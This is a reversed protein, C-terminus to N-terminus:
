TWRAISVSSKCRANTNYDHVIQAILWQTDAVKPNGPTPSEIDYGTARLVVKRTLAFWFKGLRGNRLAVYPGMTATRLPWGQMRASQCLLPAEPGSSFDERWSLALHCRNQKVRRIAQQLAMAGKIPRGCDLVCLVEGSCRTAGFHFLLAIEQRGLKGADVWERPWERRTYVSYDTGGTATTGAGRRSVSESRLREVFEPACAEGCVCALEFSERSKYASDRFQLLSDITACVIDFPEDRVLLLFSCTPLEEDAGDYMDGFHLSVTPTTM